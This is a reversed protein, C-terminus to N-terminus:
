GWLKIFILTLIGSVLTIALVPLIVAKIFQGEEKGKVGITAAANTIKAPTIASAIGGGVSHAAYIWMFAGAGVTSLTAEWQIKAFLVNSATSSGGVFTGLVGLFPASIPYLDGLTNALFLAILRDMNYDKFYPTPVLKGDIVDMASWAMIFAVAFFLSYALFPGWSRKMWLFFANKLQTSSPRLIFISFISVVMIWFWVNSLINLDEKKDAFVHIVEADGLASALKAKIPALNVIFSFIILLIFPSVSKLIGLSFRVREESSPGNVNKLRYYFYVFVMTALGSIVGIIEVPFIRTYACFLASLSLVLGSLFGPLFNKRLAGWGGVTYIMLFAFFPSIIPLFLSIKFTFDWIFEELGNIGPPNIGFSLAVKAPLTIPISFLAFSTLPDYCLISIAIAAVPSFGLIRFIPPFMAPTVMGLATSLSGFGMGLFLTQEEKTKVIGKIYDILNKLDGTERMLFILFMTFLVALTIGLAKVIGMYTAGLAVFFPTKFYVVAVLVALVWGLISVFTGSRHFFVMGLFVVLLPFVALFVEM